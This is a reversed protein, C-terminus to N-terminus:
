SACPPGGQASNQQKCPQGGQTMLPSSIKVEVSAHRRGSMAWQFFRCKGEERIFHLTAVKLEGKMNTSVPINHNSHASIHSGSVLLKVVCSRNCTKLRSIHGGGLLLQSTQLSVILFTVGSHIYEPVTHIWELVSHIHESGSHFCEPYTSSNPSVLVVLFDSIKWPTLIQFFKELHLKEWLSFISPYVSINGQSRFLEICFVSRRSIWRFSPSRTSPSSSPPSSCASSPSCGSWSPPRPPAPTSSCTGCRRM